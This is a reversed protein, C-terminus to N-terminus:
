HDHRRFAWAGRRWDRSIRTTVDFPRDEPREFGMRCFVDNCIECWLKFRAQDDLAEPLSKSAFSVQCRGRARTLREKKRRRIKGM